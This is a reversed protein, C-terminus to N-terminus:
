HSFISSETPEIADLRLNIAAMHAPATTTQDVMKLFMQQAAFATVNSEAESLSQKKVGNLGNLDPM